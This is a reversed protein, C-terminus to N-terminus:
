YGVTVPVTEQGAAAPLFGLASIDNRGDTGYMLVSGYAADGSASVVYGVVDSGGV